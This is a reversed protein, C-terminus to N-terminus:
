LYSDLTRKQTLFMSLILLFAISFLYSFYICRQVHLDASDPPRCLLNIICVDKSLFQNLLLRASLNLFSKPRCFLLQSVKSLNLM